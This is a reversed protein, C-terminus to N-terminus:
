LYECVLFSWAKDEKILVIAIVKKFYKQHELVAWCAAYVGCRTQVGVHAQMKLCLEQLPSRRCIYLSIYLFHKFCVFFDLAVEMCSDESFSRTCQLFCFLFGSNKIFIIFVTYLVTYQNKTKNLYM